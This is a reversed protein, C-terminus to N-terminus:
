VSCKKLLEKLFRSAIYCTENNIMYIMLKDKDILKIKKSNIIYSRHPKYFYLPLRKEIERMTGYFELQEECTHIRIKHDTDTTEFFLIDDFNFNIVRSGFNAQFVTRELLKINKYDRHAEEICEIIRNKMYEYDGKILYDLAQVKYQFTLLTLESHSTVFIIYGKPDYKRILKGLEIGNIKAGLEVDLFYILTKDNSNELYKIVEEPSNTSLAINTKHKLNTMEDMIINEIEKRQKSNDECIVIDLM